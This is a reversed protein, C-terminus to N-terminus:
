PEDFLKKLAEADYVPDTYKEWYNKPKESFLKNLLEAYHRFDHYFRDNPTMLEGVAIMKAKNNLSQWLLEKLSWNKLHAYDCDYRDWDDEPHIKLRALALAHYFKQRFKFFCDGEEFTPLMYHHLAM